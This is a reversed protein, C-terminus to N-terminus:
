WLTLKRYRVAVQELEQFWFFTLVQPPCVNMGTVNTVNTVNMATCVEFKQKEQMKEEWKMKWDLFTQCLFCPWMNQEVPSLDRIWSWAHCTVYEAGCTVPWANLEVRSWGHWTLTKRSEGGVKAKLFTDYHKNARSKRTFKRWERVAGSLLRRNHKDM